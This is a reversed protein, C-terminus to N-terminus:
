LDGNTILVTWASKALITPKAYQTRLELDLGKLMKVLFSFLWEETYKLDRKMRENVRLIEDGTAYWSSL